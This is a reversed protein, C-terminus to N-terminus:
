PVIWGSEDILDKRNKGGFKVIYGGKSAFRQEPGLSLHPYMTTGHSAAKSDIHSVIQVRQSEDIFKNGFRREVDGKNGLAFRDRTEQESKIGERKNIMTESRELLYDRYLNNLMESITDTMFNTAFFVETQMAEDVTAFHHSNMWARFYDLNLKRNEPLEYLYVFHSNTKWKESLIEKEPPSLRASFYNNIGAQPKLKALEKMDEDRLWFMVGDGFKIGALAHRLSDAVSPGSVVARNEVKIASGALARSLEQTAAIGVADERYIQILHKPVHKGNLLQHALVNAELLVGQSFYFAYQSQSKPSVDV